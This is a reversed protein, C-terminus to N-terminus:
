EWDAWDEEEEEPEDVKANTESSTESEAVVEWDSGISTNISPNSDKSVYDEV